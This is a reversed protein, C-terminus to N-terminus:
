AKVGKEINYMHMYIKHINNIYTIMVCEKNLSKRIREEDSILQM